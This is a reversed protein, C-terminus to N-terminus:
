HPLYYIESTNFRRRGIYIFTLLTLPGTPSALTLRPASDRNSVNILFHGRPRAHIDTDLRKAEKGKELATKLCPVPLHRARRDRQSRLNNPSSPRSHMTVIETSLRLRATHSIKIFNYSSTSHHQSVLSPTPTIIVLSATRSSLNGSTSHWVHHQSTFLHPQLWPGRRAEVM